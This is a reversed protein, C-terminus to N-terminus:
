ARVESGTTPELAQARTLRRTECSKERAHQDSAFSPVKLSADYLRGTESPEALRPDGVARRQSSWCRWPKSRSGGEPPPPPSQVAVAGRRRVPVLSGRSATASSWAPRALRDVTRRQRSTLYACEHAFLMAPGGVGLRHRMGTSVVIRGPFDSVTDVDAAADGAAVVARPRGPLGRACARAQAMRAPDSCGLAALSWRGSAGGAACPHCRGRDVSRIGRQQRRGVSDGCRDVVLQGAACRDDRGASV